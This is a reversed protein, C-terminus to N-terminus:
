LWNENSRRLDIPHLDDLDQSVMPISQKFGFQRLM